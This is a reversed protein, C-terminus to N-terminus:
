NFNSIWYKGVNCIVGKSICYGEFGNWHKVMRCLNILWATHYFQLIPLFECIISYCTPKLKLRYQCWNLWHNMLYLITQSAMDNSRNQPRCPPIAFGTDLLWIVTTFTMSCHKVVITHRLHTGLINVNCWCVRGPSWIGGGVGGPMRAIFHWGHTTVVDM